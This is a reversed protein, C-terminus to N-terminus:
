GSAPTKVAILRACVVARDRLMAPDSTARAAIWSTSARAEDTGLATM